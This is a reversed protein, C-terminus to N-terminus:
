KQKRKQQEYQEREAIYIEVQEARFKKAANTQKKITAPKTPDFPFYKNLRKTEGKVLAPYTAIIYNRATNVCIGKTPDRLRKKWPLEALEPYQELIADRYQRAAKMASNGGGHTLYAFHRCFYEGEKESKPDGIMVVCRGERKYIFLLDARTTRRQERKIKM